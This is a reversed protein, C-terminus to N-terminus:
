NLNHLNRFIRKRKSFYIFICGVTRSFSILAICTIFTTYCSSHYTEKYHNYPNTHQLIQFSKILNIIPFILQM